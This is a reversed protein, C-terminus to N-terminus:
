KDLYCELFKCASPKNAQKTDLQPFDFDQATNYFTVDVSLDSDRNNHVVFPLAILEDSVPVLM